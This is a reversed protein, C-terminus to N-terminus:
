REAVWTTAYTTFTPLRTAEAVVAATRAAERRATPSTWTGASILRREDALWAEADLRTEFTTPANHLAGDPGSYRARMRGSPLVQIRGFGRKRAM